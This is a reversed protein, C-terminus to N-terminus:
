PSVPSRSGILLPDGYVEPRAADVTCSLSSRARRVAERSVEVMIMGEDPMHEGILEGDPDIALALGPFWAKGSKGSQNAKIVYMGNDVARSPLYKMSLEKHGRAQETQDGGPGVLHEMGSAGVALLFFEAGHSAATRFMEPFRADFCIGVSFTWDQSTVVPLSAGALFWENEKGPLHLKSFTALHGEPGVIYASNRLGQDAPEITGVILTMCLESALRELMPLSIEQAEEAVRRVQADTLDSKNMSGTVCEETFLAFAAGKAHARRTWEEIRALNAQPDAMKSHMAVAAVKVTDHTVQDM